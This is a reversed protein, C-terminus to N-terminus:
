ASSKDAARVGPLRISYQLGAGPPSSVDIQGKLRVTVLNYVIHTGLGTGGQHRKTTFFPDFLRQLNAADLGSGNDSYHWHLETHEVHLQLHIQPEAVDTIGHLLSNMILNTLIQAIAGPDTHMNLQEPAKLTVNCGYKKLQPQLSLLVDGIYSVLEIDRVSDNSQDVSIQKFSQVLDAARRINSHLIRLGDNFQLLFREFVSKQMGGQQYSSQLLSLETQLHSAATVCIGLPTNIEHAVGAVLSGLSAMKEQTVLQKQTAQLRTYSDANALAIAIYSALTRLLAIQSQSYAYPRPSQVSLVGVAKNGVVLPFYLVSEMREGYLPEPLCPVYHLFDSRQMVLLEQQQRFCVVPLADSNNLSIEFVPALSNNEMWFVFELKHEQERHLGIILVHADLMQSLHQHCRLLVQETDLSATIERGLQQLLTMDQYSLQLARHKEELEATREAVQQKLMKRITRERRIRQVLWGGVALLVSAICLLRFWWSMWWPPLVTIPLSIEHQWLGLPLRSALLFQYRGPPLRTYTAVKNGASTQLWDRDFGQLRYRYQRLQPQVFDPAAFHLSFMDQRYNLRLQSLYPLAVPLLDNDASAPTVPQNFLSLGTFQVKVPDAAASLRGPQYYDLGYRGGRFLWGQALAWAGIWTTSQLGHAESLPLYGEGHPLLYNRYLMRFGNASRYINDDDASSRYAKFGSVRGPKAADRLVRHDVNGARVWLQGHQEYLLQIGNFLLGHNSGAHQQWYDMEAASLRVLGKDTSGLWIAGFYDETIATIADFPLQYQAIDAQPHYHALVRRDPGLLFVGDGRSGVWLQQKADQYIVSIHPQRSANLLPFRQWHQQAPALLFLGQDTGVWLQGTADQKVARALTPSHQALQPLALHQQLRHTIANFWLVGGQRNALWVQEPSVIDIGFIDAAPLLASNDAQHPLTRIERAFRSLGSFGAQSLLWLTGQRDFLLRSLNNDALSFALQPQHSFHQWHESHAPRYWLGQGYTALWVGHQSDFQLDTVPAQLLAAPQQAPLAINGDANVTAIGGGYTALWIMNDNGVQIRSVSDAPLASNASHYGRLQGSQPQWSILGGTQEAASRLPANGSGLWLRGDAAAYIDNIYRSSVGDVLAPLEVRELSQSDAQWQFLGEGYSGLWITGQNDQHIASIEVTASDPQLLPLAIRSFRQTLPDYLNLGGYRTGIWLRGDAAVLLASVWDASLSDADDAVARFLQVNDGDFRYLGHQTGLWLFGAQDQAIATALPSINHRASLHIFRSYVSAVPEAAAASTAATTASPLVLLVTTLWLLLALRSSATNM